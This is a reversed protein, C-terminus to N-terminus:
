YTFCIILYIFPGSITDMFMVVSWSLWSFWGTAKQKDTMCRLARSNM